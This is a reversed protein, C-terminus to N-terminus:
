IWESYLDLKYIKTTNAALTYLTPEHIIGLLPFTAYTPSNAPATKPPAVFVLLDTYSVTTAFNLSIDQQPLIARQTSNADFVASGVATFSDYNQNQVYPQWAAFDGTQSPVLNAGTTDALFTFLGAGEFLWFM